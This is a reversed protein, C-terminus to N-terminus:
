SVLRRASRPDGAPEEGAPDHPFAPGDCLRRQPLRRFQRLRRGSRDAPRHGVVGFLARRGLGLLRFHAGRSHRLGRLGEINTSVAAFHDSVAAEGLADAIWKRASAANTMTEDTTFTKSAVIFMTRKPDLRKLIDHIHAGDVNSVYHARLDARTYPELALTVMAPGLDSGGIGINVIDTFQEGTNGTIAGNRVDDSFSKSRAGAGRPHGAHRRRWRRAGAQRGSLAAGHAHGRSGRHHQYARGRVDRHPAGRRRRLPRPRVARGHGRRRHPEQFLRPPHEGASVSFRKFRNPDIAFQVRMPQEDLRKRHKMLAPSAPRAGRSQWPRHVKESRTKLTLAAAPRWRGMGRSNRGCLRHFPGGRDGRPRGPGTGSLLGSQDPFPDHRGFNRRHPRPPASLRPFLPPLQSQAVSRRDAPPDDKHRANKLNIVGFRTYAHGHRGARTPHVCDFMDIGRGIGGLIDDPKGVGMLYRPRTPRCNPRSRTSCASCRRRRSAWRSAAWRMATLASPNSGPPRDPVCNRM